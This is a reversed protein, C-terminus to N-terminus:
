SSKRKYHIPWVVTWTKGDDLSSEWSWDFQDGTINKFVMRQLAKKGDPRTTARSLIMQGDKFEGVFDLYGGQNDVWTQKWKGARVDFLSFSRGRLAQSDGSRFNEEVVCGDLVRTIQNTGRAVSGHQPDPWSLEWDGVWFDLQKQEPVSCPNAAAPAGPAPKTDSAVVISCLSVCLFLCTWIAINKM